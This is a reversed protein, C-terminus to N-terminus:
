KETRRDKGKLEVPDCLGLIRSSLRSDFQEDLKPLDFNSTIITHRMQAERENVLYYLSQCVFDTTKEAGIDDLILHPVRAIEQLIDYATRDEKKFSAQLEMVLTPFSIFRWAPRQTNWDHVIDFDVQYYHWDRVLLCAITTKGVGTPGAIFLSREEVYPLFQQPLAWDDRLFRKPVGCGQVRSLVQRRLRAKDQQKSTSSEPSEPSNKARSEIVHLQDHVKQTGDM